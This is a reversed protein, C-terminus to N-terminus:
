FKIIFDCFLENYLISLLLYKEAECTNVEVISYERTRHQPTKNAKKGIM